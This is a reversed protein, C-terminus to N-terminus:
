KRWDNKRSRSYKKNKGRYAEDLIDLSYDLGGGMNVIEDTFEILCDHDPM